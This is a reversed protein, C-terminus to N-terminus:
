HAESALYYVQIKHVAESYYRSRVVSNHAPEAALKYYVVVFSDAEPVQALLVAIHAEVFLVVAEV